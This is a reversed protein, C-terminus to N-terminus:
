VRAAAHQFLIKDCNSSLVGTAGIRTAVFTARQGGADEIKRAEVDQGGAVCDTILLRLGGIVRRDRPM